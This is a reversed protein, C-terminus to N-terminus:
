CITKRIDIEYDPDVEKNISGNLKYLFDKVIKDKSDM